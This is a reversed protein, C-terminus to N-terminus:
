RLHEWGASAVEMERGEADMVRVVGPEDPTAEGIVAGAGISELAQEVVQPPGAFLLQYDEGGGLAFSLPEPLMEVGPAVPVRAAEIKAGVGSAKTLRRLDLLLGDSVDMGCRIGSHLIRQGAEIQPEPRRHARVLAEEAGNAGSRGAQLLHLGGASAGLPGSVAIADGPRAASRRLPEAGCVGTMAVTVFVEGASVVDGGVILAGYRICAAIMGAYLDDVAAVDLGRPLGLTVLASVPAGGMAAVDSVNAAMAKWGVDRWPTKGRTFHVDEVMTDTTAVWIGADGHWAAADDGIGIRLHFGPRAARSLRAAGVQAGLREVLALEGIDGVTAM